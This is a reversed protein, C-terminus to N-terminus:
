KSFQKTQKQVRADDNKPPASDLLNFSSNFNVDAEAANSDKEAPTSNGIRQLLKSYSSETKKITDTPHATEVHKIARAPYFFEGVRRMVNHVEAMGKYIYYAPNGGILGAVRGISMTVLTAAMKLLSSLATYPLYIVYTGLVLLRSLDKKVMDALDGIARRVPEGPTQQKTLWALMSLFFAAVIRLLAPVYKLPIYIVQFAILPHTEPYLLKKLSKSEHKPFLHDIQRAIAFQQKADLKPLMTANAALWSALQFREITRINYERLREPHSALESGTMSLQPEITDAEEHSAFAEYLMVAFKAGIIPYGTAPDTGLDERLAESLWPIQYGGIGNALLYGLTYAAVCYAGITLPDEGLQYFTDMAIGSSGHVVGDWLLVSTEALSSGGAIAAGMPSSAMTYSVRTFWEVFASGFMSQSLAPMYIIGAGAAYTATFFLGGIPDKAFINHTFVSSFGNLGRAISTLIDNQEGSSLEYEVGALRSTINLPATNATYGNKELIETLRQKEIAKITALHQAAEKLTEELPKIAKTSEWDDVIATPLKIVLDTGFNRVGKYLDVFIYGIQKLFSLPKIWLPENPAVQNRLTTTVLHFEQNRWSEEEWSHTSVLMSKFFNLIFFGVSKLLAITNRHTKWRTATYIDLEEKQQGNSIVPPKGKRHELTDWGEIFSIALLVEKERAPGLEDKAFDYTILEDNSSSYLGHHKATVANRPDAQYDDIEKRADEIIDNLEGRTLAFNRSSNYSMDQNVGQLEYLGYIMQQKVFELISLHGRSRNHPALNSAKSITKLLEAARITDAEIGAKLQALATENLGSLDVDAFYDNFNISILELKKIYAKLTDSYDNPSNDINVLSELAELAEFRDQFLDILKLKVAQSNSVMGRTAREHATIRYSGLTSIVKSTLSHTKLIGWRVGKKIQESSSQWVFGQAHENKTIFKIHHTTPNSQTKNYLDRHKSAGVWPVSSEPMLQLSSDSNILFEKYKHHNFRALLTKGSDAPM